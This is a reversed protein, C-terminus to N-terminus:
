RSRHLAALGYYCGKLLIVMSWGTLVAKVINGFDEQFSFPLEFLLLRACAYVSVSILLGLLFTEKLFRKLGPSAFFKM